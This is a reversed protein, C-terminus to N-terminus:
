LHFLTKKQKFLVQQSNNKDKWIIFQANHIADIQNLSILKALTENTIKSVSDKSKSM